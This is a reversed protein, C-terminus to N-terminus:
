IYNYSIGPYSLHSFSWLVPRNQQNLKADESGAVLRFLSGNTGEAYGQIRGRYDEKLGVLWGVFLRLMKTLGDFNM